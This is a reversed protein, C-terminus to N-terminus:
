EKPPPPPPKKCFHRCIPSKDLFRAFRDQPPNLCVQPKAGPRPAELNLEYAGRPLRDLLLPLRKTAREAVAAADAGRLGEALQQVELGLSIRASASERETKLLNAYFTPQQRAQSSLLRPGSRSQLLKEVHVFTVESGDLLALVCNLVDQIESVVATLIVGKPPADVIRQKLLECAMKLRQAARDGWSILVIM